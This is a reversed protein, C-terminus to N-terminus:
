DAAAKASAFETPLVKDIRSKVIEELRVIRQGDDGIMNLLAKVESHILDRIGKVEDGLREIRRDLRNHGNQNLLIGVLALASPAGLALWVQWSLQANAQTPQNYLGSTLIPNLRM